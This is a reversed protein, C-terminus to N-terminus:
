DSQADWAAAHAVRRVTEALWSEPHRMAAAASGAVDSVAWVGTENSGRRDSRGPEVQGAVVLVPTGQAAAEDVLSGVVKGCNSQADFHGEGTVVVDARRIAEARGTAAGVVGAGSRMRAGLALLLGGIGGAAGAGPRSGVDRGTAGALAGCWRRLREDLEIVARADAGKQPGFVAAAGDPGLMPSRVDSAAVIRTDQLAARMTLPGGFIGAAGAGGDTCASGGLGVVLTDVGDVLAARMLEGVGASGALRATAADPRCGLLELGCAQASEIYGTSGVRLWHAVSPAGLPGTVTTERVASAAAREPSASLVDVFGPGGDSQPAVEYTDGPRARMWGDAMAAAARAASMTAGFGDPAFLVRTRDLGVMGSVITGM